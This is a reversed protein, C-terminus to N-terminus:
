LNNKFNFYSKWTKFIIEIFWRLQYLHNIQSVSLVDINVNTIFIEWKLLEYYNPTHNAKTNRDKKAKEIRKEAVAKPLKQAVLRVKLKAKLGLKVETDLETKGNLLSLLDIKVETEPDLVSTSYHFRSIFFIGLSIMQKFVELSFYGLDRLVLDGMKAIGLINDSSSQDNERLHGLDFYSFAKQTYNYIVQVRMTATIKKTQNGTSPFVSSLNSPLTQCTSDSLLINKFKSLISKNLLNDKNTQELDAIKTQLVQELLAVVFAFTRRNFRSELSSKDITDNIRLGIKLSLIRLCNKGEQFMDFFSHVLTAADIKKHWM